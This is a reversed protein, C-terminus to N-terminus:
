ARVRRRAYVMSAAAAAILLAMSSPEPVIVGFAPSDFILNQGDGSSSNLVAFSGVSTASSKLSGSFTGSYGGGVNNVAASYTGAAADFNVMWHWVAGRAEGSPLVHIGSNDTYGIQNNNAIGFSLLEGGGFNATDNGSRLNVLNPGNGALNFRTTIDFEGNPLSSSLPRSIGYNGGGAYLAFSNSGDVQGGSNEMYTGGGGTNSLGSWAGYGFGGNTAGWVNNPPNYAALDANDSATISLTDAGASGALLSGALLTLFGIAVFRALRIHCVM